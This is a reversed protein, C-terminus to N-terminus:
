SYTRGEAKDLSCFFTRAPRSFDVPQSHVVSIWLSGFGWQLAWFEFVGQRDHGRLLNQRLCRLPRRRRFSEVRHVRLM